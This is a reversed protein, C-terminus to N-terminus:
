ETIDNEGQGDDLGTGETKNQQQKQKSEEQEEKAMYGSFVVCALMQVLNRAYLAINKTYDSVHPYPEVPYEQIASIEQVYRKDQMAAVNSQVASIAEKM